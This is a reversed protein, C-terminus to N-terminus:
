QVPEEDVDRLQRELREIRQELQICRACVRVDKRRVDTETLGQIHRGIKRIQSATVYMGNNEKFRRRTKLILENWYSEPVNNIAWVAANHHICVAVSKGLRHYARARVAYWSVGYDAHIETRLWDAYSKNNAEARYKPWNSVIDMVQVSLRLPSIASDQLGKRIAAAKEALSEPERSASRM